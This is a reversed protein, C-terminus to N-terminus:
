SYSDVRRCHQETCPAWSMCSISLTSALTVSQCWAALAPAAHGSHFWSVALLDDWRIQQNPSLSRQQILRACARSPRIWNIWVWEWQYQYSKLSGEWRECRVSPCSVSQVHGSFHNVNFKLHLLPTSFHSRNTLHAFPTLLRWQCVSIQCWSGGREDHATLKM